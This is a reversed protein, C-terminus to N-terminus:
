APSEGNMARVAPPSTTSSTPSKRGATMRARTTGAGQFEAPAVAAKVSAQSRSLGFQPFFALALIVVVLTAALVFWEWGGAELTESLVVVGLVGGVVPKAM